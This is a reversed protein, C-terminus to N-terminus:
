IQPCGGDFGQHQPPRGGAITCYVPVFRSIHPAEGQQGNAPLTPPSLGPSIQSAALDQLHPVTLFHASGLPWLGGHGADNLVTQWHYCPILSFNLLDVMLCFCIAAERVVSEAHEQGSCM